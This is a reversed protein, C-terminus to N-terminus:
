RVQARVFDSVVEFYRWGTGLLLDTHHGGPVTILKAGAVAESVRKGMTYPVVEDNTGHFVLTPVDIRPAKALTEFRDSMLWQVPLFPAYHKGMDIISTYPATLILASGRQRTAMESAVGTGMSMGWLVIRDKGIGRSALLDLVASADAYLGQESPAGADRAEGYGRYEALVVHLGRRVLERAIWVNDGAVEGNGHFYVVTPRGGEEGLELAHAQVGDSTVAVLARAGEPPSIDTRGAGPFLLRRYFFHALVVVTLYTGASLVAIARVRKKV